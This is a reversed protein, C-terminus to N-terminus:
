FLQKQKKEIVYHLKSKVPALLPEPKRPKPEQNFEIGADVGLNGEVEALKVTFKLELAGDHREFSKAIDEAYDEIHGNILDVVQGLDSPEITISM